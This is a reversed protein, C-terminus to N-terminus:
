EITHCCWSSHERVRLSFSLFSCLSRISSRFNSQEGYYMQFSEQIPPLINRCPNLIAYQSASLRNIILKTHLCFLDTCAFSLLTLDFILVFYLQSFFFPPWLQVSCVNISVTTCFHFQIFFWSSRDISRCVAKSQICRSIIKKKRASCTFVMFGNLVNSIQYMSCQANFTRAKLM